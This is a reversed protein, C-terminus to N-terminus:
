QSKKRGGTQRDARNTDEAPFLCRKRAGGALGCNMAIFGADRGMVEVLLLHTTRDATNRIKDLADVGTNLATDYGITYDTGYLSTTSPAPYVLSLCRFSSTSRTRVPMYSGDGGIVM